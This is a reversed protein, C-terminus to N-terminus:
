IVKRRLGINGDVFLLKPWKEPVQNGQNGKEFGLGATGKAADPWFFTGAADIRTVIAGALM